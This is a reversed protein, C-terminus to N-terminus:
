PKADRGPRDTMMKRREELHWAKHCRRHSLTRNGRRDDEHNGNKHHITIFRFEAYELKERCFYCRRVKDGDFLFQVLEELKRIRRNTSPRM